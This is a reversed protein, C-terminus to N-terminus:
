EPRTRPPCRERSTSRSACPARRSWRVERPACSSTSARAKSWSWRSIACAANKAPRTCRSSTPTACNRLPARRADFRREAEPSGILEPRMVKLAVKRALSRQEASFVVGMGGHGLRELLAFDGLREFPLASDRLPRHPDSGALADIRLRLREIEDPALEPHAALFAALEIREGGLARDLYEDFASDVRDDGHASRITAAGAVLV